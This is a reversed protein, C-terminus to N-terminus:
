PQLTNSGFLSFELDALDKLYCPNPSIQPRKRKVLDYAERLRMKKATMLYAIVITASRSRGQACHVLM